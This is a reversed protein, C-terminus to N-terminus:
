LGDSAAPPNLIALTSVNVTSTVSPVKFISKIFPVCFGEILPNLIHKTDSRSFVLGITVISEGKSFEVTTRPM